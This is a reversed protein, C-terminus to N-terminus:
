QNWGQVYEDSFLLQLRQARDDGESAVIKIAEALQEMRSDNEVDSAGNARSIRDMSAALNLLECRMELFQREFIEQATQTTSM